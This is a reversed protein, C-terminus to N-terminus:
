FFYYRIKQERWTKLQSDIEVKVKQARDMQEKKTTPVDECNVYDMTGFECRMLHGTWNCIHVTTAVCYKDDAISEAIVTQEIVSHYTGPWGCGAVYLALIAMIIILKFRM